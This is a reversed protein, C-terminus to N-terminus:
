LLTNAIMQAVARRPANDSATFTMDETIGIEEAMALYGDPYGGADEAEQEWGRSCVLMKVVQEYTVADEPGFKGDGYGNIIGCDVSWKIYGAAWHKTPVDTFPSENFSKAAEEGYMMRCIMAAVEARTITNNPNFNGNEDGTIIGAEALKEVAKAYSAGEPVDSFTDALVTTCILGFCLMVVILGQFIQKTIRLKKAGKRFICIKIAITSHELM